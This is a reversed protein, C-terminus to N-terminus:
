IPKRIKLISMSDILGSDIKPRHGDWRQVITIEQHEEGEECKSILTGPILLM